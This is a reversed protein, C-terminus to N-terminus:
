LVTGAIKNLIEEYRENVRKLKGPGGEVEKSLKDAIIEQARGPLGSALQGSRLSLVISAFFNMANMYHLAMPLETGQAFDWCPGDSFQAYPMLERILWENKEIAAQKRDEFKREAVEWRAKDELMKSEDVKGNKVYKLINTLKYGSVKEFCDHGYVKGQYEVPHTLGQSCSDCLAYVVSGNAGVAPEIYPM